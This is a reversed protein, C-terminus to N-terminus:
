YQPFSPASFLAKCLLTNTIVNLNGRKFSPFKSNSCNLIPSYRLKSFVISGSNILVLDFVKKALYYTTFFYYYGKKSKFVTLGTYKILIKCLMYLYFKISNSPSTIKPNEWPM